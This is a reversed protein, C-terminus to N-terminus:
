LSFSALTISPRCPAAGYTHRAEVSAALRLAQKTQHRVQWM